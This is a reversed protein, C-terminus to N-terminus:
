SSRNGFSMAAPIGEKRAIEVVNRARDLAQELRPWEEESFNGLVHSVMDGSVEGPRGVGGRLRAYRRTGLASEVSALGNHGGDSGEARLRLRGLPLQIEDVLVVLESVDLKWWHLCAQVVPGSRNMFSQPLVLRTGDETECIQADAFGAKKWSLGAREAWRELVLFGFNHRTRRYEPGPNGLGVVLSCPM